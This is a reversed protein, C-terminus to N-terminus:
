FSLPADDTACSQQSTEGNVAVSGCLEYAAGGDQTTYNFFVNDSIDDARVGSVSSAAFLEDLSSPFSGYELYYGELGLRMLLIQNDLLEADLQQREQILGAPGGFWFYVIAVYAAILVAAIVGVVKLIKM